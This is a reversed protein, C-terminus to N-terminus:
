RRALLGQRRFANSVVRIVFYGPIPSGQLLAAVTYVARRARGYFWRAEASDQTSATDWGGISVVGKDANADTRFSQGRKMARARCDMMRQGSELKSTIWRLSLQVAIPM